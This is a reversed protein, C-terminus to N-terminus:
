SKQSRKNKSRVVSLFEPTMGLYSAMQKLSVREAFQPYKRLFNNYREEAPLSLNEIIRLQERIYANQFIIRFFREFKPVERYLKELNDRQLELLDSDELADITMVSPKGSTFSFMDTIWWDSVAFMIINENGNQDTHFARLAGQNVFFISTCIQGSQSLIQKRRAPRHNIVSHFVEVEKEELRIHKEVNKRINTFDM